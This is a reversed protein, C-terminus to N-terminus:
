RWEQKLKALGDIYAQPAKGKALEMAQDLHQVAEELKGQKQLLRAKYEHGWFNNDQMALAKDTWVMADDLRAGKNYAYQVATLYARADPKGALTADIGSWVMKDVDASVTFPVRLSEWSMEVTASTESAPTISFSMWETAETAPGAQPKVDFRLLDEEQKYYYAGWQEAKKNLVLTWKDKGPIAFLSYKGAPVDHEEVKVSTSFSITTADNAGLRWVEGFPVLGGWIGRGKVGPRHYTIEVDTVGIALGVKAAPSPQPLRIEEARLAPASLALAFLLAATKKM